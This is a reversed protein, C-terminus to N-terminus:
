VFRDPQNRRLVKASEERDNRCGNNASEAALHPFCALEATISQLFSQTNSSHAFNIAAGVSQERAGSRQLQDIWLNEIGTAFVRSSDDDLSETALCLSCRCKARGVRDLQVIEADGVVASEVIDHLEEFPEVELLEDRSEAGNRGRARDM